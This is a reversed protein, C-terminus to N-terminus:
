AGDKLRRFFAFFDKPYSGKLYRAVTSKDQLTSLREKSVIEGNGNTRYIVGVANGPNADGHMGRVCEALVLAKALDVTGIHHGVAFVLNGDPRIGFASRTALFWLDGSTFNLKSTPKEGPTEAPVTIVPRQENLLSGLGIEASVKKGRKTRFTVVKGDKVILHKLQRADGVDSVNIADSWELIDISEDTYRVIAAVGPDMKKLVAGRYIIGGKGAHRTQWLANTIALLQPQKEDEVKSSAGARYPEASGLYLRASIHKMNLLMLYVIANPYEASPRYFTRYIFPDPDHGGSVDEVKWQGEDRMKPESYLPILDKPAFRQEGSVAPTESPISSALTPSEFVEGSKGTGKVGATASFVLVFLMAPMAASGWFCKM